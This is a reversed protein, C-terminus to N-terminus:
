KVKIVSQNGTTSTHIGKESLYWGVYMFAVVTLVIAVIWAYDRKVPNDLLLEEMESASKDMEGVLVHHEAKERIVKEAIASRENELVLHPSNLVINGKEDRKLKGVNEWNVEASSSINKKLDFSFDNLRKIAEWETIGSFESLWIFFDKSPKDTETNLRFNYVPATFIKNGYDLHPSTRQLCITGIGPLSIQKHFILYQYITTYM